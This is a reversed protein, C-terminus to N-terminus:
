PGYFRSELWAHDGFGGVFSLRPRFMGDNEGYVYLYFCPGPRRRPGGALKEREANVGGELGLSGDLWTLSVAHTQGASASDM